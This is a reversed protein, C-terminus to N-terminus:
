LAFTIPSGAHVEYIERFREACHRFADLVAPDFHEPQTRGDGGTIISVARAHDFAPKYPRKSRLADYIDCINMIRASLPIAEGKIGNPYGGGDWREHHNLAIETGMKLYPSDGHGLIKAGLTTHKKMIEFEEATHEAPKLLIYDPIGIKGIDHMPSAYFIDSVFDTDMGLYEALHRSYHSIRRVHVGTDEDRHEAARTMTFITEIYSNRLKTTRERVQQELIQNHNALFDNYEKLRLLNRVRVWLEARDVPKALFEEAGANLAVLRANRDDLATVMIIPINKTAHDAKLKGVVHYGDMDGMMIDLLIMDPSKRAVAALAEEGSSATLTTYGESDLMAELLERNNREDDVILITARRDNM